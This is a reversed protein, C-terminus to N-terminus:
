MPDLTNVASTTRRTSVTYLGKNHVLMSAGRALSHHQSGQLPEVPGVSRRKM